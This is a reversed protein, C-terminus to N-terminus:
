MWDRLIEKETLRNGNWWWRVFLRSSAPPDQFGKILQDLQGEQLSTNVCGLLSDIFIIGSTAAISNKVFDRRKM